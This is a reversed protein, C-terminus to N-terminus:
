ASPHGFKITPFNSLGMFAYSLPILVGVPCDPAIAYTPGGRSSGPHLLFTRTVPTEELKIKWGGSEGFFTLYLWNQECQPREIDSGYGYVKM